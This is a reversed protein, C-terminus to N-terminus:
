PYILTDTDSAPTQKGGGTPRNGQITGLEGGSQQTYINDKRVGALPTAVWDVHADAFLVNQGEGRGQGGHNPSNWPRWNEPPFAGHATIPPPNPLGGDLAAGFPGKDAAMVMHLDCDLNPQGYKGFPVQYGYSVQNWAQRVQEPTAPGTIDGVGFDWYAQHSADTNAQDNTSPCIFDRQTNIQRRILVWLGRTTSLRSPLTDLELVDGAAPDNAKGRYSGIAGVYDVDRPPSRGVQHDALIPWDDSSENAFTYFGTGMGKLNDVCASRKSQERLRALTPLLLSVILVSVLLWFLLVGLNRPAATAGSRKGAGPPLACSAESPLSMRPVASPLDPAGAEAANDRNTPANQGKSNM